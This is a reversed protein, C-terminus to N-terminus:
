EYSAKLTGKTLFWPVCLYVAIFLYRTEGSTIYSTLTEFPQLFVFLFLRTFQFFIYGSLCVNHIYFNCISAKVLVMTFASSDYAGCYLSIITSKIQPILNGLQMNAVLFM